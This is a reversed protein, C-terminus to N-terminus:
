AAVADGRLLSAHELQLLDGARAATCLGVILSILVIWAAIVLPLIM